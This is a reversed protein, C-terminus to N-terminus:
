SPSTPDGQLYNSHSLYYTHRSAPSIKVYFLGWVKREEQNDGVSLSSVHRRLNVCDTLSPFSCNLPAKSQRCGMAPTRRVSHKTCWHLSVVDCDFFTDNALLFVSKQPGGQLCAAEMPRRSPLRYHSPRLTYSFCLVFRCPGPRGLIIQTSELGHSGLGSSLSNRNKQSITLVIIILFM